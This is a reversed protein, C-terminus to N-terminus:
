FRGQLGLGAPTVHARAADRTRGKRRKRGTLALVLGTIAMAGSGALVGIGPELTAYRLRCNGLPDVDDGSCRLENPREEIVVLAVGTAIGAAGIGLLTWGAVEMKSIKQTGEDVVPAPELAFHLTEDVGAVASIRNRQTIYGPLRAGVWHDGEELQRQLPARGAPEGDVEILAGAPESTISLEAPGRQLAQLKAGITATVAGLTEAAERVGCVECTQEATAVVKGSGADVVEVRITYDREVVGVKPWVVWSSGGGRAAEALCTAETCGLNAPLRASASGIKSLGADLEATLEDLARPPMTGTVEIPAVAVQAPAPAVAPEPPPVSAEPAAAWLFVRLPLLSSLPRPRSPARSM